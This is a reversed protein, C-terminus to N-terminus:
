QKIKEKNRRGTSALWIARRFLPRLYGDGWPIVAWQADHASVVISDESHWLGSIVILELLTRVTLATHMLPASELSCAM